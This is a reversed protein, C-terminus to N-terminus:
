ATVSLNINSLEKLQLMIDDMEGNLQSIKKSPILDLEETFQNFLKNQIKIFSEFSPDIISTRLSIFQQLETKLVDNLELYVKSVESYQNKVKNFENLTKDKELNNQHQLKLESELKTLKHSLLDYDLKKHQRKKILSRFQITLEKFSQLPEFITQEFPEDIELLVDTKIHILKDLLVQSIGDRSGDGYFKDITTVINIQSDMLTDMLTDFEKLDELLKNANSELIKFNEEHQEFEKDVSADIHGTKLMVQTGARNIAKRFGSWSM